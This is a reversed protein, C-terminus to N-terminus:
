SDWVVLGRDAIPFLYPEQPSRSTPAKTILRGLDAKMEKRRLRTLMYGNADALPDFTPKEQLPSAAVAANGPM